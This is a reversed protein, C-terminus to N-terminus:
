QSYQYGERIKLNAEQINVSEQQLANMGRLIANEYLLKLNNKAVTENKLDLILDEAYKRLTALEQNTGQIANEIAAQIRAECKKNSKERHTNDIEIKWDRFLKRMLNRKYFNHTYRINRKKKRQLSIYYKWHDFVERLSKDGLGRNCFIFAWRNAQSKEQKIRFLEMELEKREQNNSNIITHLHNKMNNLSENMVHQKRELVEQMDKYVM